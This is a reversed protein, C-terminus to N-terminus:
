IFIEDIHMFMKKIYIDGGYIDKKHIDGRHIDRRYIDGGYIDGRYIDRKYINRRCLYRIGIQQTYIIRDTNIDKRYTHKRQIYRGDTYINGKHIHERRM